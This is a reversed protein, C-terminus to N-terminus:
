VEGGMMMEFYAVTSHHSYYLIWLVGLTLAGLLIRWFVRGEFVLVDRLRARARFAERLASLPSLAEKGAYFAAAGLFPPFLVCPLFLLMVAIGRLFLLPSRFYYFLECLECPKGAAILGAMRVRGAWLPLFFVGLIFLMGFYLTYFLFPNVVFSILLRSFLILCLYGVYLATMCFLLAM